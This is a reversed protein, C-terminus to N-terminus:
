RTAPRMSDVNGLCAGREGGWFSVGAWGGEGEVGARVQLCNIVQSDQLDMSDVDGLYACVSFISAECSKRLRSDLRFDHVRREIMADIEERRSRAPPPAHSHSLALSLTTAYMSHPHHTRPHSALVGIM